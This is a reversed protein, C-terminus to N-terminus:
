IENKHEENQLSVSWMEFGFNAAAFLTRHM